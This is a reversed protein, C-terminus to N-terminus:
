KSVVEKLTATWVTQNQSSFLLLLFDEQIIVVYALEDGFM